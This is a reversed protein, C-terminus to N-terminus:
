IELYNAIFVDTGSTKVVGDPWKLYFLGQFLPNM